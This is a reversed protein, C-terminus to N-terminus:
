NVEKDIYNKMSYKEIVVINKAFNGKLATEKNLSSISAVFVSILETPTVFM